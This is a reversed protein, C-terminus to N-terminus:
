ITCSIICHSYFNFTYITRKYILSGDSFCCNKWSRLSLRSEKGSSKQLCLTRGWSSVAKSNPLAPATMRVGSKLTRRYYCWCMMELIFNILFIVNRDRDTLHPLEQWCVLILLLDNRDDHFHKGGGVSGHPYSKQLLNGVHLVHLSIADVKVM